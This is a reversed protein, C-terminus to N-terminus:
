LAEAYAAAAERAKATMKALAAPTWRVRGQAIYGYRTGGVKVSRGSVDKTVGSAGGEQLAEALRHTARVPASEARDRRADLWVCKGAMYSKALARVAIRAEQLSEPAGFWIEVSSGRGSAPVIPAMHTWAKRPVSAETLSEQARRVLEAPHEDWGLSGIIAHQRKDWPVSPAESTPAASSSSAGASSAAEKAAREAAAVRETLQAIAAEHKSHKLWSADSAGRLEDVSARVTGVAVAAESAEFRVAAVDNRLSALEGDLHEGFRALAAGLSDALADDLWSKQSESFPAHQPAGAAYTPGSGGSASDAARHGNSTLKSRIQDAIGAAVGALTSMGPATFITPQPHRAASAAAAAATAAKEARRQAKEAEKRRKEASRTRARQPPRASTEPGAGQRGPPSAQDSSVMPETEMPAASAQSRSAM